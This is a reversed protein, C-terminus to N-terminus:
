KNPTTNKKKKLHLIQAEYIDEWPSNAHVNSGMFKYELYINDNLQTDIFDQRKHIITDKLCIISKRGKDTETIIIHQNEKLFRSCQKYGRILFKRVEIDEESRSANDDNVSDPDTSNYAKTINDKVQNLIRKNINFRTADATVIEIATILPIYSGAATESQKPFMFKPGLGVLQRILQPIKLNDLVITNKEANM